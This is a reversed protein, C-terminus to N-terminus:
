IAYGHVKWPGQKAYLPVRPQPKEGQQGMLLEAALLMPPM